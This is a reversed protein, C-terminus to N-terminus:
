GQAERDSVPTAPRYDLADERLAQIRMMEDYHRKTLGVIFRGEDPWCDRDEIIDAEWQQYARLVSEAGGEENPVVPTPAPKLWHPVSEMQARADDFERKMWPPVPRSAAPPDFIAFWTEVMGCACTTVGDVASIVCGDAHRGYEVLAGRLRENDDRLVVVEAEAAEARAQAEMAADVLEGNSPGAEQRLRWLEDSAEQLAAAVLAEQAAGIEHELEEISASERPAYGPVATQLGLLYYRRVAGSLRRRAEEVTPGSHTDPACDPCGPCPIKVAPLGDSAARLITRGTGGCRPRTDPAATVVLHTVDEGEINTTECDCDPAAPDTPTM